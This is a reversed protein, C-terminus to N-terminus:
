GEGNIFDGIAYLPIVKINEYESYNELSFRVGFPPKKEQMFLRLSQMSGSKGSKVEVPIVQQGKQVIYDVEANSSKAERHWFYLSEQRYCSFSKLLELGTYQEAIYGKNIADFGENLLVDAANLGLLRQFIGTDFLLM